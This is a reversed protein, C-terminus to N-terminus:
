MLAELFRLKEYGPVSEKPVYWECQSALQQIKDVESILSAHLM